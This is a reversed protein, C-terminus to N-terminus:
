WMKENRKEVEIIIQLSANRQPFCDPFPIFVNLTKCQTLNCITMPFTSNQHIKVMIVGNKNRDMQIFQWKAVKEELTLEANKGELLFALSIRDSGVFSSTLFDMANHLFKRKEKPPCKIWPREEDSQVPSLLTLTTPSHDNQLQNRILTISTDRGKALCNPQAPM